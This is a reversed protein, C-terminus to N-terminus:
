FNQRGWPTKPKVERRQKAILVTFKGARKEEISKPNLWAPFGM